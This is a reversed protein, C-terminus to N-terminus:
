LSRTHLIWIYYSTAYRVTCTQITHILICWKKYRLYSFLYRHGTYTNSAFVSKCLRWSKLWRCRSTRKLYNKLKIQCISAASTWWPQCTSWLTLCFQNPRTLPLWNLHQYLHRFLCVSTTLDFDPSAELCSSSIWVVTSTLMKSVELCRALLQLSNFRLIHTINWIM